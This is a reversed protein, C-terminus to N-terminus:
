VWPLWPGGAMGDGGDTTTTVGRRTTDHRVTHTLVWVSGSRHTKAGNRQKRCECQLAICARRLRVSVPVMHHHLQAVHRGNLVLEILVTVERAPEAKPRLRGRVRARLIQRAEVDSGVLRAPGELADGGALGRETAREVAAARGVGRVVDIVVFVFLVGDALEPLVKGRVGGRRMACACACVACVARAVARMARLVRARSVWFQDRACSLGSVFFILRGGGDVAGFFGGRRIRIVILFIRKRKAMREVRMVTAM